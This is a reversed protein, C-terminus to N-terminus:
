TDNEEVSLLSLTRTLASLYAWGIGQSSSRDMFLWLSEPPDVSTRAGFCWLDGDGSVMTRLYFGMSNLHAEERGQFVFPSPELCALRRRALDVCGDSGLEPRAFGLLPASDPNESLVAMALVEPARDLFALVKRSLGANRNGAFCELRQCPKICRRESEQGPNTIAWLASVASGFTSTAQLQCWLSRGPGPLTLGVLSGGASRLAAFDSGDLITSRLVGLPTRGQEGDHPAADRVEEGEFVEVWSLGDISERLQRAMGVANKSNAPETRQEREVCHTEATFADIPFTLDRNYESYARELFLTQASEISALLDIAQRVQHELSARVGAPSVLGWEVLTEGLPLKERRCEEVVQRFTDEDINATQKLHQAFAFPHHSDTAWAVRSEQLYVHIELSSTACIFEGSAGVHSLRLLEDLPRAM